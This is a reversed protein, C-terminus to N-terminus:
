YLHAWAVWNLSHFDRWGLATRGSHGWNGQRIPLHLHPFAVVEFGLILIHTQTGAPGWPTSTAWGEQVTICCLFVSWLWLMWPNKTYCNAQEVRRGGRQRQYHNWGVKFRVNVSMVRSEIGWGWLHHYLFFASSEHRGNSVNLFHFYKWKM